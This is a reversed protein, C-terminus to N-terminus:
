VCASKAELMFMGGGAIRFLRPAEKRIMMVAAPVLNRAGASGTGIPPKAQALLM